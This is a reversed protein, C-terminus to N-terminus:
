AIPGNQLGISDGATFFLTDGAPSAVQGGQEVARLEPDTLKILIPIGYHRKGSIRSREILVLKRLGAASARESLTLGGSAAALASRLLQRRDLPKSM